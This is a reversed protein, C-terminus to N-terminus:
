HSKRTKRKTKSNKKNTKTKTKTKTKKTKGKNRNKGGQIEKNETNYIYHCVYQKFKVYTKSMYISDNIDFRYNILQEASKMDNPYTFELSPSKFPEYKTETIITKGYIKGKLEATTTTKKGFQEAVKDFREKNFHLWRVLEDNEGIKYFKSNYSAITTVSVCYVYWLLNLLQEISFNNEDWACKSATPSMNGCSPITSYGKANLDENLKNLRNVVYDIDVRLDSQRANLWRQNENDNKTWDVLEAGKYEVNKFSVHYTVPKQFFSAIDSIADLELKLKIPDISEADVIQENVENAVPLNYEPTVESQTVDEQTSEDLNDM